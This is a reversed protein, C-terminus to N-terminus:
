VLKVANGSIRTVTGAGTADSYAIIGIIHRDFASCTSIRRVTEMSVTMTNGAIMTQTRVTEPLVNGDMTMAFTLNGATVGAVNIDASIRYLGSSEITITGDDVEIACGTDTVKTGLDFTVPNAILNTALIPQQASSFFQVSSKYNSNKGCAM